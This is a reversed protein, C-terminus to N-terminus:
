MFNVGKPAVLLGVVSPPELLWGPDSPDMGREGTIICFTTETPHPLRWAATM